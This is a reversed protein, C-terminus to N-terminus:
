GREDRRGPGKIEIPLSGAHPSSATLPDKNKKEDVDVDEDYEDEPDTQQPKNKGAWGFDEDFTFLDDSELHEFDDAGSASPSPKSINLEATRGFTSLNAMWGYAPASSSSFGVGNSQSRNVAPGPSNQNRVVEFFEFGGTADTSDAPKTPATCNSRRAIPSTSPSVLTDDISFLVRKPSRPQKPDRLSSRLSAISTDSRSSDRRHHSPKEPPVSSSLPRVPRLPPSTMPPHVAEASSSLMASSHYTVASLNSPNFSPPRLLERSKGGEDAFADGVLPLYSPTFRKQFEEERELLAETPRDPPGPSGGPSSNSQATAVFGETETDPGKQGGDDSEGQVYNDEEKQMSGAEAAANKEKSRGRKRLSQPTDQPGNEKNKDRLQREFVRYEHEKGAKFEAIEQDLQRRKGDLAEIIEHERKEAGLNPEKARRAM